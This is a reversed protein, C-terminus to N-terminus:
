KKDHGAKISRIVITLGFLLGVVTVFGQGFAQGKGEATQLNPAGQIAVQAVNSVVAAVMIGVGVIMKKSWHRGDDSAASSKGQSVKAKKRQRPPLGANGGVSQNPAAAKSPTRRKKRAPQGVQNSGVKDSGLNVAGVRIVAGCAPCKVKRGAPQSPCTFKKDCEHCAVRIRESM